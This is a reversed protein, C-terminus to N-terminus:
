ETRILSLRRKTNTITIHRETTINTPNAAIGRDRSFRKAHCCAAPLGSLSSPDAGGAVSLGYRILRRQTAFFSSTKARGVVACISAGVSRRESEGVSRRESAVVSREPTALQEPSFWSTSM